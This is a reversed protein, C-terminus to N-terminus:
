ASVAVLEGSSTNTLLQKGLIACSVGNATFFPTETTINHTSNVCFTGSTITMTGSLSNEFGKTSLGNILKTTPTITLQVNNFTFSSSLEANNNNTFSQTGNLTMTVPGNACAPTEAISIVFNTLAYAEDLEFLGDGDSDRQDTGTVNFSGAVNEFGSGRFCNGPAVDLLIEGNRFSSETSTGIRSGGQFNNIAFKNVISYNNYFLRYQTIVNNVKIPGSSFSGSASSGLGAGFGSCNLTISFSDDSTDNPTGNHSISGSGCSQVFPITGETGVRFIKESAAASPSSAKFKQVEEFIRAIDSLNPAIDGKLRSEIVISESGETVPLVLTQRVNVGETGLTLAKIVASSTSKTLLSPALGPPTSSGGGGGGCALLFFPIFFFSIFFIYHRKM